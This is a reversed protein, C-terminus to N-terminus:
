KEHHHDGRPVRRRGRPAVALAVLAVLAAVAEAVASLTKEPFWVPEYMAPLPGFGPVNVYRYLVVAVVASLGVAFAALLATRSGRLLVWAAVVLAAVAEIRFVNGAGIGGPASQQYGPALRLHVIADVVLAVAVVVRLVLILPSTATRDPAVTASATM